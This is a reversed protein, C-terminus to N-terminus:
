NAALPRLLLALYGNMCNSFATSAASASAPAATLVAGGLAIAVGVTAATLRHTFRRM